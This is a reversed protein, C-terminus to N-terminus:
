TQMDIGMGYKGHLRLSMNENQESQLIESSKSM